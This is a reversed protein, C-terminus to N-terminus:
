GAIDCPTARRKELRDTALRLPPSRLHAFAEEALPHSWAEPAQILEAVFTFQGPPPFGVISLCL